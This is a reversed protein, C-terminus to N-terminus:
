KFTAFIYEAIKKADADSITKKDFTTMGSGPKRMLKVVDAPAKVKHADRDAKHLTKKPNVINGGDPHCMSCNDKFLAEGSKGKEADKAFSIVAFMFVTLTVIFMALIKKMKHMRWKRTTVDAYESYM